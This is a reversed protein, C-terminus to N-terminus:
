RAYKLAYLMGKFTGVLLTDGSHGIGRIPGELQVTWEIEGSALDYAVVLGNTSGVIVDDNMVHIRPVYWYAKPDPTELEHEWLLRGTGLDVAEVYRPRADTGGALFVVRPAVYAMTAFPIRDLPHIAVESGDGADLVTVDMEDTGFVVRSGARCPQTTIAADVIYTWRLEGSDAEVACVVNNRGAVVVLDDYVVPNSTHRGTTVRWNGGGTPIGATPRVSWVVAGGDRAFAFLEDDRAISYLLNGHPVLNSPLGPDVPRKWQLTGDFPDLAYLTGRAVNGEDTAIILSRDDLIPAGHFQKAGDPSVDFTWQIDGSAIDFAYM